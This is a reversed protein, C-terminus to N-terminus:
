GRSSTSWRLLYSVLADEGGMESRAHGNWRAHFLDGSIGHPGGHVVHILPYKKTADFDPPLVVFMQVTEGRAGVFRVDRVEGSSFRSRVADTFRTLRTWGKGDAACTYAEAPESLTQWTFFARGDPMAELAGLAGDGTVAKPTGAGSWHFLRVRADQEAEFLLSGDKLPHWATPSLEWDGLWEHHTGTARDYRMLRTRDAYFEPDLTRGYVIHKGDPTYRPAMESGPSMATMLSAEGGAPLPLTFLHSLVLSRQADFLHGCLAIERGDPSIDYQGSPDMWEFWLESAPMLDRSTASKLDYLFLHPVEGTTLWTDWYRYFREETVHAKVPDKARREIEAATAEPTLHCKLLLAGFVIGSGDPLWQPDFVGLPLETLKRAEGGGMPLLMLQSKGHADKRTFALHAGDPSFRPEAASADPSTLARAEGTGDASVLHIQTKAENKALDWRTVPVAVCKGDPSPQPAGVRPLEWLDEASMSRAARRAAHLTTMPTSLVSM